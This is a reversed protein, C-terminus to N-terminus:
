TLSSSITCNNAEHPTLSVISRKDFPTLKFSKKQEFMVTNNQEIITDVKRVLDSNVLNHLEKTYQSLQKSVDLSCENVEVLKEKVEVLNNKAVEYSEIEKKLSALAKVLNETDLILGTMKKDNEM